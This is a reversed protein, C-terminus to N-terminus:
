PRLQPLSAPHVNVGVKKLRRRQGALLQKVSLINIKNIIYSNITGNYAITDM